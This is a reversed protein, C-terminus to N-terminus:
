DHPHLKLGLTMQIHIRGCSLFSFCKQEDENRLIFAFALDQTCRALIFVFLLIVISRYVCCGEVM